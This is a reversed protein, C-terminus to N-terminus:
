HSCHCEDKGQLMLWLSQNDKQRIEPAEQPLVGLFWLTWSMLIIGLLLGDWLGRNGEVPVCKPHTSIM